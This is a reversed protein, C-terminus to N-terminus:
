KAWIDSTKEEDSISINLEDLQDKAVMSPSEGMLDAAKQTKPFAIVDRINDTNTLLMILRDLGIAIGLHPPTGYKLAEIFFGFRNTIDDDSINLIKFIKEQLESNHIRQSGGAIEYGNLVLDYGMSRVKLPEKELMDIDDFHPSTFPHHESKLRKENEDYSFMPFDCVWLFKLIDNKILSRTKAIHRRLHDLAQNVIKEKETAILILDGEKVDAAEKIKLLEEESFFKVISSAFKGEKFKMWALGKLGFKSVFSTYEDIIRRSVDEANEVKIAKVIGGSKLQDQIVTFKSNKVIEDLRILQMDFRLDPRDTGFKEMCESHPMRIFPTKVDINKCKKFVDKMLGELLEFIEEPTAFSMEMDVQTFEPQRDARLDEDRFCQPM